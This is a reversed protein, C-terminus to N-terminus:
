LRKIKGTRTVSIEDVFNYIRPVKHMQIKDSLFNILEKESIKDKLKVDAILINGLVSNKKGYVRSGIIFPHSNLIEEVELPDVKYGGVNIMENKRNIFRFTLPNKKIVDVIDGTRYFDGEFIFIDSKGLYAKHILLENNDIKVLGKLDPKLEFLDGKAAFLTGAETSAYINLIQANPFISQLKLTLRQDFREGGCSLRVVSKFENEYPLLLRYFTPTASINTIDYKEVLQYIRKRSKGFLNVISNWNMVAQFFVQLGAIHTPNFAFGWINNFRKADVKVMRILSSLNHSVKKPVGSTGSTFITLKWNNTNDFSDFINLENVKVAHEINFYGKLDNESFGLAKVENDSFDSDIITVPFDYIISALLHLFIKYASRDNIIVPLKNLKNLDKILDDYTSISGEDVLFLKNKQVM